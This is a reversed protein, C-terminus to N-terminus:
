LAPDIGAKMWEVGLVHQFPEWWLLLPGVKLSDPVPRGAASRQM